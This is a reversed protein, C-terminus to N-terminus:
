EKYDRDLDRVVDIFGARVLENRAGNRMGEFVRKITEDIVLLDESGPIPFVIVEDSKQVWELGWIKNTAKLTRKYTVLNHIDKEEYHRKDIEKGM